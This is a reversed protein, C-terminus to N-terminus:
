GPLTIIRMTNTGGAVGAAQGETMLIRDGPSALGRELLTRALAESATRAPDALVDFPVPYVGRYLAVRRRTSESRSFAYIPIGSRIRSMWCATSGSETLAVIAKVNMHNATYMTAMAIAEDTCDFVDDMRHHSISTSRQKEASVCASAMAEVAKVPHRGVATEGSLM